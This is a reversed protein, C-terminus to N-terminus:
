MLLDAVDSESYTGDDSLDLTGGIRKEGLYVDQAMTKSGSKLNIGVEANGWKRALNLRQCQQTTLIWKYQTNM